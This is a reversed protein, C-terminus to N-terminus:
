IEMPNWDTVVPKKNSYSQTPANRQGVTYAFTLALADAVDPSSLGRGKMNEKKELIVLNNATYGYNVSILESTLDIDNPIAGGNELWNKMRWWMEARKNKVYVGEIDGDPNVSSNVGIVNHGLQRLRDVVGGGVGIVDIFVADPKLRKIEELVYSVTQMTDIKRFKRLCERADNGRRAMIVTQDDGERAVDVGLVIPDYINTIPDRTTAKEVLNSPILQMSGSRPFMGKVRVRVFDSDEGYDEIWEKIQTKNTMKAVRSDVQQTIWRHKQRGFCERFAGTNRTPNGFAFFMPEGDTLGGEAVKWIIDPVNSAEDFLYFSTSTANHLGAFSESNEERCTQGDARWTDPHHVHKLSLSQKGTSLNFWENTICLRKWKALEGFTKTELQASTNATIIGKAHPRTSMIFLILWSVLASNHTVIFNQALYLGTDNNVQICRGDFRGIFNVSKIIRHTGWTKERYKEKKNLDTFPNIPMEIALDYRKHTKRYVISAKGGLSRVLWAVDNVHTIDPTFYKIRKNVQGYNDLLCSLVSLRVAYSNRLYCEPIPKDKLEIMYPHHKVAVEDFYVAKYSPLMMGDSLRVTEVTQWEQKPYRVTWLHGSSVELKTGDDFNVEFFEIKKYDKIGIIETHKGDVGFVEDGIELESFKKVGNKTDIWDTLKHAKGVGHGSSVSKRIASVPNRGDFGNEKIRCGLDDLFKIQWTDPGNYGVLEGKGWPFSFLVWDLPNAYYEVMKKALMENFNSM